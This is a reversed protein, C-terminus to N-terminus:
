LGARARLQNALNCYERRCKSFLCRFPNASFYTTMERWQGFTDERSGLIFPRLDTQSARASRRAGKFPRRGWAPRRVGPGHTGASRSLRPKLRSQRELIRSPISFPPSFPSEKHQEFSTRLNEILLESLNRKIFNM